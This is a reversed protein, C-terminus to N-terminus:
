FFYLQLIVLGIGWKFTRMEPAPIAPLARAKQSDFSRCLTVTM